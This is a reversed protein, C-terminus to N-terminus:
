GPFADLFIRRITWAHAYTTVLVYYISIVFACNTIYHHLNNSFISNVPQDITIGNKPTAM